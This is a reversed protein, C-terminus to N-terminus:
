GGGVTEVGNTCSASEMWIILMLGGRMGCQDQSLGAFFGFWFVVFRVSTWDSVKWSHFDPVDAALYLTYQLFIIREIPGKSATCFCEGSLLVSVGFVFCAHSKFQLWWLDDDYEDDDDM